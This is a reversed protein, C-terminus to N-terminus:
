TTPHGFIKPVDLSKKVDAREKARQIKCLANAAANESADTSTAIRSVANEDNKDFALCFNNTLATM